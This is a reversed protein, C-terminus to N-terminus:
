FQKRPWFEGEADKIPPPNLKWFKGSFFFQFTLSLYAIYPLDEYFLPKLFGRNAM